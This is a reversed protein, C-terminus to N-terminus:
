MGSVYNQGGSVLYPGDAGFGFVNFFDIAGVNRSLTPAAGGGAKAWALPWSGPEFVYGGAGGVVFKLFARWLGTPINQLVISTINQNVDIEVFTAVRLDITVVGAIPAITARQATVPFLAAQSQVPTPDGSGDFGLLFGARTAAPPLAAFVDGPDGSITRGFLMKLDQVQRALHDLAAEYDTPQFASAEGLAAEQDEPTARDLIIRSGTPWSPLAGLVGAALTVAGGNALSDGGTAVLTYGVGISLQIPGTAMDVFVAVDAQDEYPFGTAFPGLNAGNLQYVTECTAPAVTM